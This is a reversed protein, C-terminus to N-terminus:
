PFVTGWIQSEQFISAAPSIKTLMKAMRLSFMPLCSQYWKHSNFGSNAMQGRNLVSLLSVCAELGLPSKKFSSLFNEFPALLKKLNDLSKKLSEFSHLSLYLWIILDKARFDWWPIMFLSPFKPAKPSLLLNIIVQSLLPLSKGPPGTAAVEHEWHLPDPHSGQEPFEIGCAAIKLESLAGLSGM